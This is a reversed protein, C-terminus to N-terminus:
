IAKSGGQQFNASLHARAFSHLFGIVVGQIKAGSICRYSGERFLTGPRTSHGLQHLKTCNADSGRPYIPRFGPFTRSRIRRDSCSNPAVFKSVRNQPSRTSDQSWWGDLTGMHPSSRCFIFYFIGRSRRSASIRGLITNRSFQQPSDPIAGSEAGFFQAFIDCKKRKFFHPVAGRAHPKGPGRLIDLTSKLSNPASGARAKYCQAFFPFTSSHHMRRPPDFCCKQLTRGPIQHSWCKLKQRPLGWVPDRSPQPDWSEVLLGCFRTGLIPHFHEFLKSFRQFM